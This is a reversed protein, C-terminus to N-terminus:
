FSLNSCINAFAQLNLRCFNGIFKVKKGYFECFCNLKPKINVSVSSKSAFTTLSPTKKPSFHDACQLNESQSTLIVSSNENKGCFVNNYLGDTEATIRNATNEAGSIIKANPFHRRFAGEILSFHTCGLVVNKVNRPLGKLYKELRVAGLDFLHREIDEALGEAAYVRAGKVSRKMAAATGRTAVVLYEEGRLGYTELPPFTGYFQLEPYLARIDQLVCTSLTGCAFVVARAGEARLREVGSVALSMLDRKGRNGYPANGNDGFYVAGGFRCRLLAEKLVVLGGAGSDM